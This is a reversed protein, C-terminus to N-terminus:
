PRRPPSRRGAGPRARVRRTRGRDGPPPACTCPPPRPRAQDADIVGAPRHRLVRNALWDFVFAENQERSEAIEVYRAGQLSSIAKLVVTEGEPKRKGM